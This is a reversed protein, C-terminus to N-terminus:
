LYVLSFWVEFMEISVIRDFSREMEFKSIDAVIIEINSLENERFCFQFPLTAYCLMVVLSILTLGFPPPLDTQMDLLHGHLHLIIETLLITSIISINRIDKFLQLNAITNSTNRDITNALECYSCFSCCYLLVSFLFCIATVRIPQLPWKSPNCPVYTPEL